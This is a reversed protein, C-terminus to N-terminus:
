DYTHLLLWVDRHEDYRIDFVRAEGDNATAQFRWGPTPRPPHTLASADLFLEPLADALRTPSDTVRFRRARWVLRNPRGDKLWVAVVEDIQIM